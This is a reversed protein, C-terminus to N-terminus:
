YLSKIADIQSKALKKRHLREVLARIQEPQLAGDTAGTRGNSNRSAQEIEAITMNSRPIADLRSRDLEPPTDPLAMAAQM